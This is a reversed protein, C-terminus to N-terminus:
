TLIEQFSKLIAKKNLFGDHKQKKLDYFMTVRTVLLPINLNSPCNRWKFKKNQENLIM